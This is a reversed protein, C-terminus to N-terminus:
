VHHSVIGTLEGWAGNGVGVQLLREDPRRQREPQEDHQERREHHGEDTDRHHREEHRYQESPEATTVESQGPRPDTAPPSPASECM